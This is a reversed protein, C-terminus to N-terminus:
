MLGAKILMKFEEEFNPTFINKGINKRIEFGTWFRGEDIEDAALKFPGDSVMKYTHILESEWKNRM